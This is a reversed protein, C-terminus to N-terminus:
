KSLYESYTGDIGKNHFDELAFQAEIEDRLKEYEDLGWNIM